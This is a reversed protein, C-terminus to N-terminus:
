LASATGVIFEWDGDNNHWMGPNANAGELTVTTEVTENQLDIVAARSPDGGGNQNEIILADGNNNIIPAYYPTFDEAVKTTNNIGVPSKTNPQHEQNQPGAGPQAQDSTPTAATVTISPLIHNPSRSSSDPEVELLTHEAVGAALIGGTFAGGGALVDRRKM